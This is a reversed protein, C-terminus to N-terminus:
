APPHFPYWDDCVVVAREPAEFSMLGKLKKKTADHFAPRRGATAVFFGKAGDVEEHDPLFYVYERSKGKPWEANVTFWVVRSARGCARLKELHALNERIRNRYSGVAILGCLLPLVGVAITWPADDRELDVVFSDPDRPDYHVTRPGDTDLSRYLKIIRKSGHHWLGNERQYDVDITYWHMIFIFIGRGGVTVSDQIRVRGDVAPLGTRALRIARAADHFLYGAAGFLALAVVGIWTARAIASIWQGVVVSRRVELRLPRLDAPDPEARYPDM